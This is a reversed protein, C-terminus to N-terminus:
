IDLTPNPKMENSLTLGCEQSYHQEPCVLVPFEDRVWEFDRENAKFLNPYIGVTYRQLGRLLNRNLPIVPNRLDQLLKKARLDYPIIVSIQGSQIIKFADAASKFQFLFPAEKNNQCTFMSLIAERDWEKRRGYFYMRFYREAAENSLPDVDLGLVQRAVNATEQFFKEASSDEADFVVVRGLGKRKGNRNCRGAAQAISDLGAMSRFVVPFDVDVGAEVLQTSIVRTPLNQDLRKRIEKLKESRHQPCMLASLHLHGEQEGICQYLNQAHKRSNVICLVQHEDALQHVLDRDNIKGIQEVETRKLVEFLAPVDDIVERVGTLGISFDDHKRIAPQTATCFVITAGFHDVLEKLAALCPEIFDVPLTQAEDLLIVSNALRHLKRTKSTRNAFLSEYFQVSTTVVMPADWNESALRNTESERRPDLSSHHELVVDDALDQFVNRYVEANQEIISTFPAVYVVRRKQHLLAHRLAFALSSLTKGGGTPVTLTFFGPADKAKSKCLDLVRERQRDVKTEPTGFKELHRDLAESMRLLIDPEWDPRNSARDPSMFAETALFDADVLCSFLMRNFFATAFGANSGSSVTSKLVEPLKLEENSFFLSEPMGDISFLEKRLRDDLCANESYFDLLGSHHGAIIYALLHGVVPLREVALQAGKSSHDVKEALEGRHPDARTALYEQFEESYKGIDHWSGIRSAWEEVGFAQAFESALEAVEQLHVELLEWEEPPADQKTHAYYKM